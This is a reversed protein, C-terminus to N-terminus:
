NILRLSLLVLPKRMFRWEIQNIMVRLRFLNDQQDYMLDPNLTLEFTFQMGYRM